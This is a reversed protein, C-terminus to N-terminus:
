LMKMVVILDQNDCVPFV